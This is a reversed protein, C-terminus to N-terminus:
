KGWTGNRLEPQAWHEMAALYHEPYIYTTRLIVMSIFEMAPEVKFTEKKQSGQEEKM